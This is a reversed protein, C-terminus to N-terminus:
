MVHKAPSEFANAGIMGNYRGLLQFGLFLAQFLMLSSARSLPRRLVDGTCGQCIALIPEESNSIQIKATGDSNVRVQTACGDMINCYTGAPMGTMLTVRM